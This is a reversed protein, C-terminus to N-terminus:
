IWQRLWPRSYIQSGSSELWWVQHFHRVLPMGERSCVELLTKGVLDQGVRAGGM